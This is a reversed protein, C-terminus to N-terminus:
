FPVAAPTTRAPATAGTAAATDPAGKYSPAAPRFAALKGNAQGDKVVTEIRAELTQGIMIERPREGKYEVTCPRGDEFVEIVRAPIEGLLSNLIARLKTPGGGPQNNISHSAWVRFAGAEPHGDLEFDFRTSDGFAKEQSELEDSPTVAVLSAVYWDGERLQSYDRGSTPTIRM